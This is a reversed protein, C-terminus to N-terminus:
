KIYVHAMDKEGCALRTGPEDSICTIVHTIGKKLFVLDEENAIIIEDPDGLTDNVDYWLKYEFTGRFIVWWEDKTPHFHKRCGEGKRQHIFAIQDNDTFVVPYCWTDDNGIKAEIDKLNMLTENHGLVDDNPIPSGDLSILDKLEREISTINKNYYWKGVNEKRKRHSLCAEAIYLEDMTDVDIAEIKSIPYTGFHGCFTAGTEYESIFTKKKWGTLAWAISQIPNLTQTPQKKNLNFNIPSGDIFSECYTEDVSVLSDFKTVLTETFKKITTPELLPSTTHVQVVYDMDSCQQSTMFDYLYHDHISCRTRLCDRSSNKMTCASGGNEKKRHYFKVGLHEAIPQFVLEDSSVYIEDFIGSKKCSDIVYYMLPFGDVLLLNKNPVRTSNLLAPILAIKKM